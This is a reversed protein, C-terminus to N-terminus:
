CMLIIASKITKSKSGIYWFLGVQISYQQHPLLLFFFSLECLNAMIALTASPGQTAPISPLVIMNQYAM